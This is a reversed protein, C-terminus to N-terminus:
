MPGVSRSALSGVAIALLYAPIPITQEYVTVGNASSVRVGGLLATLESPHTVEANFTFKVAATDQCPVISRAHIAQCQSYVYPHKKEYTTEPKMWQLGSATPATKYAILVKVSGSTKTPLDITLKAGIEEIHEGVVFNAPLKTGDQAVISVNEITLESVDLLQYASFCNSCKM